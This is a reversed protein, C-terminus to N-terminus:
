DKLCRVSLGSNKNKQTKTFTGNNYEIKRCYVNKNDTETSSWWYGINGLGTYGGSLDRYGSPLGSFLSANSADTNPSNWSTFGVEKMKGGAVNEGGLYDTLVTWEADTPIHWGTPCINNSPIVALWNYLKGNKTSNSYNNNYDCSSGYTLFTWQTNDTTNIIFNFPPAKGNDYESVKLNEAMWTQTGIIVSKYKNGEIDSIIPGNAPKQIKFSILNGYATENTNTAYARLYYTTENQLGNLISTYENMGIGDNTKNDSITPNVSTSWCLGKATILFGGDSTISGGSVISNLSIINVSLTNIQIKGTKFSIENGYSTGKSNTAYARVYYTTGAQLGSLQSTFNGSSTGDTTKSDTLTPNNNTSWCIGSQTINSGGNSIINGGSQASNNTITNIPLTNIIPEGLNNTTFSKVESFGIGFETIAYGKVYYQTNPSLDNLSLSIKTSNNSTDIVKIDKDSPNSNTSLYVGKESITGGSLSTILIEVNTSAYLINSFTISSFQPPVKEKPLEKKCSLFALILVIFCISYKM